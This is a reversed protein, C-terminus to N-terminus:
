LCLETNLLRIKKVFYHKGIGGCSFIKM